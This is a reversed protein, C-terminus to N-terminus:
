EAPAVVIESMMGLAAHTLIHCHALWRGPNDMYAIVTVTSRGPLLVTDKLGPQETEPRGDGEIHFFQGHLHFPHEPGANNVLRIRVTEGEQFIFLPEARNAVGNLVWQLGLEPDNIADFEITVERDVPREPEPVQRGPWEIAEPTKDTAEVNVTFVDFGREVVDGADNRVAIMSLLKVPGPADYTVELDYRQGVPVDLVDTLYPTVLPGGDVSVVRFNAGEVRLRMTRANATNVVRWREVQGQKAEGIQPDASGNTLLMNGSRGHMGEMPSAPFGALGNDGVLIDDLIIARELDYTPEDPEHVVIMGYLGREMQEEARVHPHYWYTGAEPAIFRYTFEGGPPVPTQVRPSGDMEDSIRLGHWHITTPEFLANRMHAIIEDGVKAHIVPGPVQGNYGYMSAEFDSALNHTVSGAVINFEVIDPDDNLDEIPAPGYMTPLEFAPAADPALPAADQAGSDEASAADARVAGDAIDVAADTTPDATSQGDDCGSLALFALGTAAWGFRRM